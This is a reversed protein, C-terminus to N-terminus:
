GYSTTETLEVQSKSKFSKTLAEVHGLHGISFGKLHEILIWNFQSKFQEIKKPNSLLGILKTNKSRSDLIAFEAGISKLFSKTKGKGGLSLFPTELALATLGLHLKHSIVLDLGSLFELTEKPNTYCHHRISPSVLSPMLELNIPSNPLYTRIFHFVLDQRFLAIARLQQVMLRAAFSNPINIGIHKIASTNRSRSPIDWFKQVSWLVDPYYFAQKGMLQMLAVDSTLRVTPAQCINSTWFELKEPSLESLIGRGDGGVSVPFVPCHYQSATVKLEDFDRDNESFGSELMAGGGILCFQSGNLLEDLSHTTHLGFQQAIGSDLRYIWPTFGQEKLVKAFQVAMLDDGYNGYNYSGWVAAKM